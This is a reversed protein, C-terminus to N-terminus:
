AVQSSRARYIGDGSSRPRSALWEAVERASWRVARPGIKIPAPFEGARMMRYLTSRGFGIRREVEARRLLRDEIEAM